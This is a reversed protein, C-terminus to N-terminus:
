LTRVADKVDAVSAVPVVLRSATLDLATPLADLWDEEPLLLTLPKGAHSTMGALLILRDMRAQRLAGTVCAGAYAELSEPLPTDEEAPLGAEFPLHGFLIDDEEMAAELHEIQKGLADRLTLDELVLHLSGSAAARLLAGLSLRESPIHLLIPKGGAMGMVKQLAESQEASTQVPQDMGLFDNDPPVWLGDAGAEIAAEFSALTSTQALVSVLRDDSATRAPLHASGIFFRRTRRLPSQYRAVTAADPGVYVRGRDGDVIVIEGEGVSELLLDGLDYVAPCALFSPGPLPPSQAAVGVFELGPFPSLLFGSQITDAILVVQEPEHVEVGFRRLREGLRQLRQPDLSPIGYDSRLRAAAAIVVGPHVSQGYFLEM